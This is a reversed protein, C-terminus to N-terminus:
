SFGFAGGNSKEDVDGAHVFGPGAEGGGEGAVAEAVGPTVGGGEGDDGDVERGEGLEVMGGVTDEGTVGPGALIVEGDKTLDPVQRLLPRGLM